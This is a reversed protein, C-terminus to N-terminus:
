EGRRCPPHARRPGLRNGPQFCDGAMMGQRDVVKAIAEVSVVRRTELDSGPIIVGVGQPVPPQEQRQGTRQHLVLWAIAQQEGLRSRAVLVDALRVERGFAGTRVRGPRFDPDLRFSFTVSPARALGWEKGWSQSDLRVTVPRQGHISEVQAAQKVLSGRPPGIVRGHKILVAPRQQKRRQPVTGITQRGAQAHQPTPRPSRTPRHSGLLRWVTVAM